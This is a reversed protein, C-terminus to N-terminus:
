DRIADSLMVPLLVRRGDVDLSTEPRARKPHFGLKLIGLALRVPKQTAAEPVVMQHVTTFATGLSKHYVDLDPMFREDLQCAIRGSEDLGHVFLGLNNPFIFGPMVEWGLEIEVQSGHADLRRLAIVGRLALGGGFFTADSEFAAEPLDPARDAHLMGSYFMLDAKWEAARPKPILKFVTLGGESFAEAEAGAERLAERSTEALADEVAVAVGEEHPICVAESVDFGTKVTERSTWLAGASLRHLEQAYWRDAFVRVIGEDRIRKVAAPMDLVVESDWPTLVRVTEFFVGCCSRHLPLTVRLELVETAAFIKQSRHAIGGYYFRKGSWYYGTERFMGSLERWEGDAESRGEVAWSDMAHRSRNVARLGCVKVPEAFTIVLECERDIGTQYLAAFTEGNYDTLETKWDRGAPDTMSAIKASPLEGLMQPGRTANYHVQFGPIMRFDARALTNSLFHDFGRFNDLVGPNESQELRDFYPAYRYLKPSVACIAEDTAWNIGYHIFDAFYEKPLDSHGVLGQAANYLGAKDRRHDKLDPIHGVVNLIICLGGIAAMAFLAIAKGRRANAASRVLCGVGCGALVAFIPVFPLLYRHSNVTGFPSLAYGLTFIGLYLLCACLLRRFRHSTEGGRWPVVATALSLLMLVLAPALRLRGGGLVASNAFLDPLKETLLLVATHIAKQINVSSSSGSLSMWGHRANWIWWPLSGLMFGLLSWGLVSLRFLKLRLRWFLMVCVVGVAPITLWFNWFSLGVIFGLPLFRRSKLGQAQTDETGLFVAEHILLVTLLLGLAYGGRPSAMYHFYGIPGILCLASAAVAAVPGGIRLSLRYVALIMVFAMLGTGLCVAFPTPGLFLGLLASFAPELSGMYPQGYFFVPFDVGALIHRVMVVVVAYDPNGHYAYWKAGLVRMVLCAGLVLASTCVIAVSRSTM